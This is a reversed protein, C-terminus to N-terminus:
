FPQGGLIWQSLLSQEAATLCAPNGADSTPNGTCGAGLPMTGDQVRVLMCEGKTKGPCYYSALQTASYLSAFNGGGSGGTTHCTDCKVQLIPRVDSAYSAAPGCGDDATGDCDEDIMNDCVETAPLVEGVCAGYGTGSGDCTKTGSQCLGVDTTGSPGTYCSATSGPSCAMPAVTCESPYPTLQPVGTRDICAAKFSTVCGSCQVMTALTNVTGVSGCSDGDPDTLLPCPPEAGLVDTPTFDDVGDCTKDEGGCAKCIAAQRKAEAAALKELAKGDGPDPCANSHKGKLRASWCKHLIGIKARLYGTSAKGFAQQCKNLETQTGPDTQVSSLFFLDVVQDVAANHICSLCSAIGSCDSIPNSCGLQEFNPCTNPWGISAPLDEGSLDGGCTQDEGGCAKGIAANMKAAAKDIAAMTKPELLCDTSFSLKGSLRGLQCKTIAKTRAQAYKAGASEIASQCTSTEALAATSILSLATSLFLGGIVGIGRNLQSSM